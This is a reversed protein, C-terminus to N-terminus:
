GGCSAGFGRNWREMEQATQAGHFSLTVRQTSLAAPDSGTEVRHSFEIKLVDSARRWYQTRQHVTAPTGRSRDPYNSWEDQKSDCRKWGHGQLRAFGDDAIGLLPYAAQVTFSREWVNPNDGRAVIVMTAGKPMLDKGPDNAAAPGRCASLLLLVLLTRFLPLM